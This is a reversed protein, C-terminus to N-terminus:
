SPQSKRHRSLPPLTYRTLANGMAKRLGKGKLPVYSRIRLVGGLRSQVKAEKLKTGEWKMDVVFGGRAVLGSVNGKEWVDPLAPLLHVAGDHSQLLMEAIGSAALANNLVDFVLQNDMTCGVTVPGHEPSISPAIVLWRLSSHEVLFDLFFLAAGKLVPYYEKLFGTDGTFLYHQWLHQSLWMGGGPWM